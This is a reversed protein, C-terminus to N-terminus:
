FAVQVSMFNRSSRMFRIYEHTTVVLLAANLALQTEGWWKVVEASIVSWFEVSQSVWKLRDYDGNM